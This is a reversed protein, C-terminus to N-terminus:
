GILNSVFIVLVRSLLIVLIGIVAYLIINKAKDKQAEDGGSVILYIGAVIVAAVALLLVINLIFTIIKLILVRISTETSIGSGIIPTVNLGGGYVAANAHQMTLLITVALAALLTMRIPTLTLSM